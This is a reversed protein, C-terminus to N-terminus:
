PPTGKAPILQGDVLRILVCIADRKSCYPGDYIRFDKGAAWDSLATDASNYSRQYAGGTLYYCAENEETPRLCAQYCLGDLLQNQFVQVAKDKPLAIRSVRYYRIGIKYYLSYLRAAM